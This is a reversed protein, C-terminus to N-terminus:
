NSLTRPEQSEGRVTLYCDWFRKLGVGEGKPSPVEVGIQEGRKLSCLPVFNKAKDLGGRNEVGCRSLSPLPVFNKVNVLVVKGRWRRAM